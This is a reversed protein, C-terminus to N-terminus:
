LEHGQAIYAAERPSHIEAVTAAYQDMLRWRRGGHQAMLDDLRAWEDPDPLHEEPNFGGAALVASYVNGGLLRWPVAGYNTPGVLRAASVIRSANYAADMSWVGNIARRIAGDLSDWLLKQQDSVWKVLADSDSPM